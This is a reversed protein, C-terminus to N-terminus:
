TFFVTTIHKRSMPVITDEWADEEFSEYIYDFYFLRHEQEIESSSGRISRKRPKSKDEFSHPTM